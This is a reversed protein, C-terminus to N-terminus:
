RTRRRFADVLEPPLARTSVVVVSYLVTGVVVDLWTSPLALATGIWALMAVVPKWAVAPSLRLQPSTLSMAALLVGALAAEGAVAAVAGGRAGDTSLLLAGAGGTVLFGVAAAAVVGRMYGSAVLSNGWAMSLFAPILALVQIQLVPAAAEYEAGGLLRLLPSAVLFVLVSLYCGTVLALETMRRMMYELRRRSGASASLVPLAVAVAVAALGYLMEIIRYSTALLGTEYATSLLSSMVVLIRFYFVSIAASVAFPLATRLLPRWESAEFRPRWVRPMGALLFPTVALLTVGVLVQIGFFAILAAELAVLLAFMAVTVAQRIVDATTIRAIALEATLPLLMTLHATTLMLGVGMLATGAVLTRDYGALVTFALAAATGFATLVVRIGLLNAVLARRSDPSDRLAIERAGLSSLGAESVGAVIAILSAVTMYRGFEDISFYRLLLISGVVGLALGVGYGGARLTAGRVVVLGVDPATLHDLSGVGSPSSAGDPVDRDASKM